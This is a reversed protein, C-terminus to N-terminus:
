NITEFNLILFEFNEDRVGPEHETFTVFASLCFTVTKDRTFPRSTMCQSTAACLSSMFEDSFCM